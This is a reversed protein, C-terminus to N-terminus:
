QAPTEAPQVTEEAPATAPAAPEATKDKGELFSNLALWNDRLDCTADALAPWAKRVDDIEKETLHWSVPGDPSPRTFQMTALTVEGGFITNWNDIYQRLNIDNRTIAAGSYASTLGLLPGALAASGGSAPPESDPDSPQFARLQVIAVRKFKLEGAKRAELVPTLWDLMSTVGYNDYYGGDILHFEQANEKGPSQLDDDIFAPRAAPAVYPFTASLRASTWIALEAQKDSDADFYFESITQGRQYPRELPPFTLPTIMVRRGVEMATASMIFGPLRGRRVDTGYDALTESDDFRKSATYCWAQELLSGRDQDRHLPLLGLTALRPTDLMALGYASAVLSSTCARKFITDLEAATLKNRQRAENLYFAAGVSGGSVTSFLSIEHQFAPREAILREMGLTFWAAALIGGGTCTVVVLNEPEVAPNIKAQAQTRAQVVAVPDLPPQRAEVKVQFWHDIGRVQYGFFCVLALILIPSVRFRGFHFQLFGTIWIMLSVAVFFFAVAGPYHSDPRGIGQLPYLAYTAIILIVATVFFNSAAFFHASLAAPGRQWLYTLWPIARLAREWLKFAQNCLGSLFKLYDVKGCFWPPLPKFEPCALITPTCALSTLILSVALAAALLALGLPLSVKAQTAVWIDGILPISLYFLLQQRTVQLNLFRTLFVPMPGFKLVPDEGEANDSLIGQNFMLTISALIHTLSLWFLKWASAELFLGAFLSYLPSAKITSLIPFLLLLLLFFIGYKQLALFNMFARIKDYNM